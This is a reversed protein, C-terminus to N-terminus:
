LKVFIRRWYLIGMVGLWFLDCLIGFALPGSYAGFSHILIKNAAVWWTVAAGEYTTTLAQLTKEGLQSFVWVAISNM